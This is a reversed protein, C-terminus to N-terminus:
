KAKIYIGLEAGAGMNLYDERGHGYYMTMVM